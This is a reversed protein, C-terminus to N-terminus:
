REVYASPEAQRPFECPHPQLCLHSRSRIRCLNWVPLPRDSRWSRFAAGHSTIVNFSCWVPFIKGRLTQVIIAIFEMSDATYTTDYMRIIHCRCAYMVEMIKIIHAPLIMVTHHKPIFTVETGLNLLIEKFDGVDGKFNGIPRILFFPTRRSPCVFSETFSDFCYEGLEVVIKHHYSIVCFLGATEEGAHCAFDSCHCEHLIDIENIM